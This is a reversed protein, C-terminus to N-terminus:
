PDVRPRRFSLARRANRWRNLLEARLRAVEAREAELAANAGVLDDNIASAVRNVRDLEAELEEARASANALAGELEAAHARAGDVEALLEHRQAEAQALERERLRALEEAQARVATLTEKHGALDQGLADIAQAADARAAELEAELARGREEHAAREASIETLSARHAELDRQLVAREAAADRQERALEAELATRAEQESALEARVAELSRRHAELDARLTGREEESEARERARDAELAEVLGRHNALEDRVETLSREHEELDQELAAIAARSEREERALDQRLRALEAEAKALDAALARAKARHGELDAELDEEISTWKAKEARWAAREKDFALLETELEAFGALAGAPAVPPDLLDEARPLERREKAGIIVHRYVPEAHDSAYLSANYFRHVSKALGRLAPDDDLYLALCMLAFWRDLNGHGITAVRCGLAALLEETAARDPLGHSRHEDLYRHRAKLKDRLFAQLLEEAEAVRPADYPGALVVWGRAVRECERVFAERDAPPVHELTDFACVVDFSGDAFPLAAGSGLVLGTEESAEVDVLTVDGDELFSRLLATRGGVDLISLRSGDSRLRECLDAVLRYRQYQDFPLELVNM